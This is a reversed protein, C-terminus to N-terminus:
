ISLSPPAKAIRGEVLGYNVFHEFGSRYLGKAVDAAVDTNNELYFTEDYQWSPQRKEGQGYRIFHEYGSRYLGKAVDAAVDANNELYFREDFLKLRPSRGEFQGFKLYHFFGSKVEDNATAAALNKEQNLYQNVNFLNSPNRKKETLNPQNELIGYRVFHNFASDGQRIAAAVDSNTALYYQTNFLISPDRKEFQGFRIFHEFGYRYIGAEVDRKVDPNNALYFAEDYIQLRPDREEYQGYLIFHEWASRYIGKQITDRIDPNQELYFMPDFLLSPQRNEIHGYKQFHELAGGKYIGQAVAVAVDENNTLYYKEDFYLSASDKEQGELELLEAFTFLPNGIYNKIVTAHYFSDIRSAGISGGATQMSGIGYLSGINDLIRKKSIGNISEFTYKSGSPDIKFLLSYRSEESISVLGTRGSLITDIVVAYVNGAKDVLVDYGDGSKKKTIIPYIRQERYGTSLYSSYVLDNGKENLKVIFGDRFPPKEIPLSNKLPFNNSSTSGILYSNGSSDIDIGNILDDDSGGLYTSYVLTNDNLNLKSVFGDVSGAKQNQLPNKTPFNSSSTSGVLFVHNTNEMVLDTFTDEGSGGLYTSYLLATGNPNLKSFFGDSAGAKQAQLPKQTPFNNSSTNGMVYINGFEDLVIEQSVDRDNGGLYTSYLLANGTANLKAVFIDPTKSDGAKASQLPNVTPFDTSDTDGTIYANGVKDIVINAGSDDGNSGGLYTSYIVTKGDADLKAVFANSNTIGVSIPNGWYDFATGQDKNADGPSKPQFANVTTPFRNSYALTTGTIYVNGLSDVAIDSGNASSRGRNTSEDESIFTKEYILVPDIVLTHASNYAGLSFGVTNNGLLKYAAKVEKIEGNIEQYVYPASDILEGNATKIILAGDERLQLDEAGKYQIKIKGADAGVNVIFEGKLHGETGKYIRDIGNYVNRYVVGEYTPVDTYWQTPDNGQLFNAVGVLKGLTEMKPNVNSGILSSRVVTPNQTETEAEALFIVENPTFYFTHERGKIQYKVEADLQGANAIFSLEVKGWDLKKQAEVNTLTDKQSTTLTTSNEAILNILDPKLAAAPLRGEEQNYLLWDKWTNENIVSHTDAVDPNKSLYYDSSFGTLPFNSNSDISIIDQIGQEVTSLNESVSENFTQVRLNEMKGKIKTGQNYDQKM